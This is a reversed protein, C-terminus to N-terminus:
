CFPLFLFRLSWSDYDIGFSHDVFPPPNQLGGPVQFTICLFLESDRFRYFPLLDLVWLLGFFHLFPSMQVDLPSSCPGSYQFSFFPPCAKQLTCSLMAHYSGFLILYFFLEFAPQFVRNTAGLSNICSDKRFGPSRSLHTYQQATCEM